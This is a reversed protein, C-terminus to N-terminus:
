VEATSTKLDSEFPYYMERVVEWYNSYENLSQLNLQNEREHGQMLAVMSNLSPQSTTGSFSALACDVSDIGADIAKLYTAIQTGATDHTHLAIPVSVTERLAHILVEAAQPKLLGAMDKIAIMHAGADELRKALDTYYTLNYKNNEKRLVDGTYGICPQAIAETNKVVFDIAPLMSELNNLSDFIRFVDIGQKWSEEIFKGIINKPYASYGVANSGRFLMQLLTNPMAERLKRLREWPCEHLFRLAVDFTAGGWVEASFLQPNDKSFGDAVALIDKTRMRTAVLSQHADRFTTDTYHIKKDNRIHHLFGERGLETLLDKSGKPHLDTQVAPIIPTRFVKNEDMVKVDPHGNVRVNALYKLIKTSSDKLKNLQFLEPHQDIFNVTCEGAIFKEHSIVNELFIINTTVGRVRFETLSRFLRKATSSLTRGSATVKVIMSDFFPSIKMGQYASGEDLRIGFGGANRYAILTGYDPKFNNEPDETTIRCQIAFGNVSVSEQNPIRIRNDALKTGQAILLQNRVIDIGTVEETVTHEVQIRPNVEIFYINNERDVLFEVTGANNYNVAKAIKIAYDYLKNKVEQPLNPAPAIEVVKQFRRQVSCDREFLHVINGFNDALLQVEIHKPSDIFKEIFITGDGFAKLAENSAETFSAMVDEKKRVVRMGRGGGGSAAKLIVPFGIQEARQAATQLEDKSLICDEIVPVQISRALTKAAIKDGLQEMVEPTPGVFIIGEERCRRAFNVNESLFGYGPHIADVNNEKAVKIIAEIDLYPKLPESDDGIQYSEDSKFRHLSYRDEHTFVAVTTVKMESAARLVRIAIEGRNAVLLKKIVTQEQISEQQTM